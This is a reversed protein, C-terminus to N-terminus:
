SAERKGDDKGGQHVYIVRPPQQLQELILQFGLLNVLVLCGLAIIVALEADRM